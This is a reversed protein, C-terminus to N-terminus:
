LFNDNQSEDILLYRYNDKFQVKMLSNIFANALTTKGNGSEGLLLITIPRNIIFM